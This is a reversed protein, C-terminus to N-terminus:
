SVTDSCSIVQSRSLHAMSRAYQKMGIEFLKMAKQLDPNEEVYVQVKKLSAKVSRVRKARPKKMSQGKRKGKANDNVSRDKDLLFRFYQLPFVVSVV